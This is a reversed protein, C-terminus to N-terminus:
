AGSGAHPQLRALLADRAFSQGADVYVAAIIGDRHATIATEMKMSEMVLLVQGQAVTDGPAAHVSILTGPMSACIDDQSSDQQQGALRELPDRYRLHYAEGEIHVFVDDGHAALAIDLCQGGIALRCRGDAARTLTVDLVEDALHLRYADAGRSLQVAYEREGVRFAHHM